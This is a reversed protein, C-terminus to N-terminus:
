KCKDTMAAIAILPISLLGAGGSKPGICDPKAAASAAAQFQTYKDTHPATLSKGSNDALKQIESRSELYARRLAEKDNLIKNTLTPSSASELKSESASNSTRATEESVLPATSPSTISQREINSPTIKTKSSKNGSTPQTAPPLSLVMPKSSISTSNKAQQTLWVVQMGVAEPNSTSQELLRPGIFLLSLMSASLLMAM